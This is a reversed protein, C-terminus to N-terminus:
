LAIGIRKLLKQFRPDSRLTEFRPDVKAYQLDFARDNYAKDLWEFAQDSEGLGTYILAIGWPSVSSDKSQRKLEAIIKEAEARKGWVAYIYGSQATNFAGGGSLKDSRQFEELAEKYMAKQGYVIGLYHHGVSFNSDMDLTKRLQQIARDNDQEIFYLWGVNANIITSLPDLEQAKRMAAEAEPSKGMACLLMGYWHHATAYNPNLEIARKLQLEALGYDFHDQAISAMSTHAEPLTENLELARKAAATAKPYVTEGSMLEYEALLTYCDALGAYAQAYTSDLATAQEFFGIAKNFGDANRKNLHYLGKLYNQYAENNATYLNTVRNTEEGTLKSRLISSAERAIEKQVALLDSVDREYQEGWLHTNNRLDALEVAISLHDGRVVVRGTIVAHVQLERGVAVPDAEAGKFRFVSSHAIVKLGPVQSLNNIISDTIGDSLYEADPDASKNLFPLIAISDITENGKPVWRYILVAALAAVIIAAALWIRRRRNLIVTPLTSQATQFGYPESRARSATAWTASRKGASSNGNIGSHSRELETEFAFQQKLRKLDILMDKITQYRGEPDKALAKSVIRELELPVQHSYRALPPPDYTLISSITSASNESAFPQVGGFLEYLVVGFSFIDSRVDVPQGQVQEPSMYPVTGIMMGPESLLTPAISDIYGREEITKSLGFDLVKAQGRASLMINLPKIDRHIIGRSHAEALADAIQVAIEFAETLEVPKRSMRKALTEGEIYQMVIFSTGSEEGIEHISCINPHDLTAAAQAERLLRRRAHEDGLSRLPLLKIAVKRGLRTDEGLYVEGMGGAGLKSIIRYHSISQLDM